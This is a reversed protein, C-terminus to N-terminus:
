RGLGALDAPTDVDPNGGPVDVHAVLEPHAEIVPGLGRDGRVEGVLVFATRGVAVPNPGGGAAHRAVVFPRDGARLGAVLRRIIAPDVRPQDGLLIVVGDVGPMADIEAVGIVVSSALGRGPDPNRVRREGHWAIAPEIAEVAHGLVVVVPDLDAARAAALVHELMPRGELAALAKPAGFRTSEGAALVLGAVRTM